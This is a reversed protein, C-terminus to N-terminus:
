QQHVSITLVMSHMDIMLSIGFLQCNVPMLIGRMFLEFFHPFQIILLTYPISYFPLFYQVHIAQQQFVMNLWIVM